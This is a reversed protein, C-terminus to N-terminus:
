CHTALEVEDASWKDSREDLEHLAAIYGENQEETRIVRPPFKMLMATYAPSMAIASM